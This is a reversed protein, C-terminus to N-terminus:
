FNVNKIKVVYLNTLSAVVSKEIPKIYEQIVKTVGYEVSGAPGIDHFAVIANDKCKPIWNFVDKKVGEYSHDGDIFLFDIEGVMKSLNTATEKKQSDAIIMELGHQKIFEERGVAEAANDIGVVRAKPFCMKFVALTGGHLVGIEVITKPDIKAVKKILSLM